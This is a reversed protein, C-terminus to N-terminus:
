RSRPLQAMNLATPKYCLLLPISDGPDVVLPFSLVDPVLFQPSSSTINTLVLPGSGKNNITLMQDCFSGLCVPAFIGANGLAVAIAGWPEILIEWAGRGGTAAM